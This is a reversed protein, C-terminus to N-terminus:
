FLNYTFEDISNLNWNPKLEAIKKNLPEFKHLIGMLDKNLTEAYGNKLITAKSIIGKDVELEIKWSAGDLSFEKVMKYKPSYGFIWEEKSYKDTILQNIASLDTTSFAHHFTEPNANLVFTALDNTFEEISIKNQLHELINTVATRNSQVAKDFYTNPVVKIAASLQKLDSNFLLTGHHLVRKRYVHEANGSIKLDGIRIDNKEGIYSDIGLTKLYDIVPSIFKKFDIMKGEKGNAIFTFNLNQLDHVVTGGGSLRRALKINNERVYRCNIEANTNQHKGIVVSPLSRWLMFVEETSNKLLFEETALNFYPDFSNSLIFLM